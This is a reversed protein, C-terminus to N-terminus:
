PKVGENRTRTPIPLCLLFLPIMREFKCTTVGGRHVTIGLINFSRVLISNITILTQAYLGPRTGALSGLTRLGIFHNIFFPILCMIDILDNKRYEPRQVNVDLM